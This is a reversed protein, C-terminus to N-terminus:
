KYPSYESENKEIIDTTRGKPNLRIERQQAKIQMKKVRCSRDKESLAAEFESIEQKKLEISNSIEKLRTKWDDEENKKTKELDKIKIHLTEIDQDLEKNIKPNNDIKISSEQKKLNNIEIFKNKYENLLKEDDIILIELQKERNKLAAIKKRLNKEETKLISSSGPDASSSKLLQNEIEVERLHKKLSIIDQVLQNKYNLDETVTNDDSELITQQKKVFYRAEQKKRAPSKDVPSLVRSLSPSKKKDKLMSDFSKNLQKLNNKIEINEKRVINLRKICDLYEKQSDLSQRYNKKESNEAM